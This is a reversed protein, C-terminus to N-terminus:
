PITGVNCHTDHGPNDGCMKKVSNYCSRNVGQAADREKYRSTGLFMTAVTLRSTRNSRFVMARCARLASYLGLRKAATMMRIRSGLVVASMKAEPLITTVPALDSSSLRRALRFYARIMWFSPKSALNLSNLIWFM